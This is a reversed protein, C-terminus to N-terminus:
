RRFIQQAKQRDEETAKSNPGLYPEFEHLLASKQTGTIRNSTIAPAYGGSNRYKRYISWILGLLEEDPLVSKELATNGHQGSTIPRGSQPPRESEGVIVSTQRATRVKDSM